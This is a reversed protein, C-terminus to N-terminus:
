KGAAKQALELAQSLCTDKKDRMEKQTPICPVDPKLSRGELNVNGPFILRSVSVNTAFNISTAAGVSGEFSKAVTVMGATDDGVLVAKKNKQLHYAVVEAASATESDVLIFIPVHLRPKTPKIKLPETKKRGIMSAMEIEQDEFMGEFAVMSEVTGGPCNRLDLVLAKATQIQDAIGRLFDGGEAPFERLKMYGVDKSMGYQFPHKLDESEAELVLSWIDGFRTFPDQVIPRRIFKPTVDIKKTAGDREVELSLPSAMYLLRGYIFMRENNSRDLPVGQISVIHDGLMLGAKEAASKPTIEYVRVDNGFPKAEFGYKAESSGLPPIFFTHSDELHEALDYIAAEMENVSQAKDIKQRAEEALQAWHLGKLNPDYYNKEIDSVMVKLVDKMVVRNEKLDDAQVVACFSVTLLLVALNKM